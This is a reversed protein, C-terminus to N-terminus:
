TYLKIDIIPDGTVNGDADRPGSYVVHYTFDGLESGDRFDFRATARELYIPGDNYIDLEKNTGSLDFPHAADSYSNWAGISHPIERTAVRANSMLFHNQKSIEDIYNILNGDKDKEPTCIANIWDSSGVVPADVVESGFIIDKLQQTPNAFIYINAKYTTKETTKSYWVNLDTKAFKSKAQYSSKSKDSSIDSLTTVNAAAIFNNTKAEALVLVADSIMNEYDKGIEVGADSQSYNEDEGPDTTVSRSGGASPLDINITVYVGDGTLANDTGSGDAGGEQLPDDSCATLLAVSALAYFCRRFVKM